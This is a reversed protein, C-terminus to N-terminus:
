QLLAVYLRVQQPIVSLDAPSLRVSIDIVEVAATVPQRPFLLSQEHVPVRTLLNSTRCVLRLLLFYFCWVRVTPVFHATCKASIPLLCV